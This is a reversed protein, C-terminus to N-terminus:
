FHGGGREFIIVIAFLVEFHQFKEKKRAQQIKKKTLSVGRECNELSQM